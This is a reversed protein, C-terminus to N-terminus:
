KQPNHPPIEQWARRGSCTAASAKNWEFDPRLEAPRTGCAQCTFRSEIDSLRGDDSWQDASIAVWHSCHYDSCYVLVGRVDMERM